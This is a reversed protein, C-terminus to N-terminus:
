MAFSSRRSGEAEVVLEYPGGAEMPDLSDVEGEHDAATKYVRNRHPGGRIAWATCKGLIPVSAHRQLVMGDSMLSSLKM